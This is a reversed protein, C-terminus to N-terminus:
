FETRRVEPFHPSEAMIVPVGVPMEPVRAAWPNDMVYSRLYEDIFDPDYGQRVMLHDSGYYGQLDVGAPPLLAQIGDIARQWAEPEVSAQYIDDIVGLLDRDSFTM